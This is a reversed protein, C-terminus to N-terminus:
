HVCQSMRLVCSTKPLSRGCLTVPLAGRDEVPINDPPNNQLSKTEGILNTLLSLYKEEDLVLDAVHSKSMVIISSIQIFPCTQKALSLRLAHLM